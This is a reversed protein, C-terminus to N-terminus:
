KVRQLELTWNPQCTKGGDYSNAQEWHASSRTMASWQLRGIITKGDQEFSAYFSGVGNEFKGQAPPDLLRSPYRSDLWWISWQDKKSDYSRLGVARYMGDPSNLWHEEVNAVGEMLLRLSLTGDFEVWKKSVASIRRHHVRWEGVLFDFGHIGTLDIGARAPTPASAQAGSITAIAALAGAAWAIRLKKNM